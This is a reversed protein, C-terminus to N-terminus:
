VIAIASFNSDPQSHGRFLSKMNETILSENGRARSSDDARDYSSILNRELMSERHSRKL